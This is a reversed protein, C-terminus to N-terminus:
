TPAIGDDPESAGRAGDGKRWAVEIAWLLVALTGLFEKYETNQWWRLMTGGALLLTAQIAVFGVLTIGVAILPWLAPRHRAARVVYAVLIALTAFVALQTTLQDWEGFNFAIAPAAALLVASSPAIAAVAPLRSRLDTRDGVYAALGLVAFLGFYYVLEFQHTGFNHLNTEQQSNSAFAGSTEFGFMRQGWSVEEAAVLLLGLAVLILLPSCGRGAGSRVGDRVYRFAFLGAAVVVMCVQASELVADERAQWYFLFPDWLLLTLFGAAAVLPSLAFVLARGPLRNPASAHRRGARTELWIVFLAAAAAVLGTKILLAPSYDPVGKQSLSRGIVTLELAAAIGILAMAAFVLTGWDRVLSAVRWAASATRNRLPRHTPSSAGTGPGRPAAIRGAGSPTLDITRPSASM